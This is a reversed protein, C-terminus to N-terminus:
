YAAFSFLLLLLYIIPIVSSSCFFVWLIYDFHFAGLPNLLLILATLCGYFVLLLITPLIIREKKTFEEKKGLQFYMLNIMHLFCVIACLINLWTKNLLFYLCFSIITLVVGFVITIIQKKTFGKEEM